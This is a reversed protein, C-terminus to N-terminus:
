RYLNKLVGWTTAKAPTGCSPTISITLSQMTWWAGLTRTPNCSPDLLDPYNPPKIGGLETTGVRVGNAISFTMCTAPYNDFRAVSQVNTVAFLPVWNVYQVTEWEVYSTFHGPYSPDGNGWPGTGSLWLKGGVFVCATTRNGNGNADVADYVLTGNTLMTGCTYQWETGLATGNWSGCNQVTGALLAGGGPLWGETYRGTSIPGGLDSSQYNGPIPPGALSAAAVVLGLCVLVALSTASRRM